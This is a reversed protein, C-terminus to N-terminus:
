SEVVRRITRPNDLPATKKIISSASETFSDRVILTLSKVKEIILPPLNDLGADVRFHLWGEIPLGRKLPQKVSITDLLDVLTTQEERRYIEGEMWETEWRKLKKLDNGPGTFMYSSPGDKLEVFMRYQSIVTEIPSDNHISVLM